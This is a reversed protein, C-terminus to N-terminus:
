AVAIFHRGVAGSPSASLRAFRYRDKPQPATTCRPRRAALPPHMPSKRDGEYRCLRELRVRAGAEVRMAAHLSFGRSNSPHGDFSACRGARFAKAHGGPSLRRARRCAGAPGSRRRCLLPTTPTRLDEVVDAWSMQVDSPAARIASTDLPTLCLGIESLSLEPM